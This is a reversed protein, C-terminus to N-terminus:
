GLEHHFIAQCKQLIFTFAGMRMSIPNENQIEIEIEIEIERQLSQQLEYIKRSALQM